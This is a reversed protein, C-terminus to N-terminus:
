PTWSSSPSMPAIGRQSTTGFRTRRPSKARSIQARTSTLPPLNKSRIPVRSSATTRPSTSTRHRSLKPASRRGRVGRLTRRQMRIRRRWFNMLWNGSSWYRRRPRCDANRDMRQPMAMILRSRTNQDTTATCSKWGILRSSRPAPPAPHSRQGRAQDETHFAKTVRACVRTKPSEQPAVAIWMMSRWNQVTKMKKAATELTVTPAM